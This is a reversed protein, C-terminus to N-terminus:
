VLDSTPLTLHTYSVASFTTTHAHWPFCQAGFREHVLAPAAAFARLTTSFLRRRSLTTCGTKFSMKGSNMSYSAQYCISASEHLSFTTAHTHWRFCQAGFREHVLAPAAAFERLTTCFLRRRSLATCGTKFSVKSSNMSYSAQYCISAISVPKRIRTAKMRGRDSENTM